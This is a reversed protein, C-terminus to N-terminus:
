PHGRRTGTASPSSSLVAEDNIADTVSSRANRANRWSAGNGRLAQQHTPNKLLEGQQKQLHGNAIAKGRWAAPAASHKSSYLSPEPPAQARPPRVKSSRGENSLSNSGCSPGGSHGQPARRVPECSRSASLRESYGFAPTLSRAPIAAHGPFGLPEGLFGLRGAPLRRLPAVPGTGLVAATDDRSRGVVAGGSACLLGLSGGCLDM